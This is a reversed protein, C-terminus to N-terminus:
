LFHIFTDQNTDTNNNMHRKVRGGNEEEGGWNVREEGEGKTMRVDAQCCCVSCARHCCLNTNVDCHDDTISSAAARDAKVRSEGWNPAWRETQLSCGCPRPKADWKAPRSLHAPNCHLSPQILKVFPCITSMIGFLLIDCHDVLYM